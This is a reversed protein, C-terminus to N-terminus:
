ENIAGDIDRSGHSYSGGSWSRALFTTRLPGHAELLFSRARSTECPPRGEKRGGHGDVVDAGWGEEGTVFGAGFESVADVYGVISFM